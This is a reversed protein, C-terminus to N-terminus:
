TKSEHLNKSIKNLGKARQQILLIFPYRLKEHPFCMKWRDQKRKKERESVQETKGATISGPAAPSPTFNFVCGQEPWLTPLPRM